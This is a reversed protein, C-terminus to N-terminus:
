TVRITKPPKNKPFERVGLYALNKEAAQVAGPHNNLEITKQYDAIAGERNGNEQYALGRSYYAVADIPNLRIAESCDAIAQEFSIIGYKSILTM